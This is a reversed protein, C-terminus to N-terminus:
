VTEVASDVPKLLVHRMCICMCVCLDCSRQLHTTKFNICLNYATLGCKGYVYCHSFPHFHCWIRTLPEFSLYRVTRQHLFSLFMPPLQGTTVWSQLWNWSLINWYSFNDPSYVCWCINDEKVAYILFDLSSLIFMYM